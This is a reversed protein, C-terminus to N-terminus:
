SERLWGHKKLEAKAKAALRALRAADGGSAAENIQLMLTNRMEFEEIGRAQDPHVQKVLRRHLAKIEAASARPAEYPRVKPTHVQPEFAFGPRFGGEVQLGLAQRLEIAKPHLEGLIAERMALAQEFREEGAQKSPSCSGWAVLLDALELSGSPAAQRLLREGWSFYHESARPLHDQVAAAGLAGLLAALRALSSGLKPHLLKTDLELMADVWHDARDIDRRWYARWALESLVQLADPAGPVPKIELARRLYLEAPVWSQAQEFVAGVQLYGERCIAQMETHGEAKAALDRIKELSLNAQAVQKARLQHQALSFLLRVYDCLFIKTPASAEQGVREFLLAAEELRGDAAYLEALGRLTKILGQRRDALEPVLSLAALYDSESRLQAGRRLHGAWRSQAAQLPRAAAAM